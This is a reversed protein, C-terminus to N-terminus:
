VVVGQVIVRGAAVHFDPDVEVGSGVVIYGVVCGVVIGLANVEV